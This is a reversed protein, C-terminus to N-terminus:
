PATVKPSREAIPEYLLLRNSFRTSPHAVGSGEYFEIIPRLRGEPAPTEGPVGEKPAIRRFSQRDLSATWWVDGQELNEALEITFRAEWAGGHNDYIVVRLATPWESQYMISVTDWGGLGGCRSLDMPGRFLLGGPRRVTYSLDVYPDGGDPEIVRGTGQYIEWEGVSVPRSVWWAYAGLCAAIALVIPIALKRPMHMFM